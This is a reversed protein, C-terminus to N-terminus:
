HLLGRKILLLNLYGRRESSGLGLTEALSLLLAKASQLEESGALIELELFEGLEDVCDLAVTVERGEWILTGPIRMKTVEAVPAFGVAALWDLALQRSEAGAGVSVEIERRTKTEADLKPGKYTLRNDNGISRLRVAEDTARFDRSPHQFYQDIERQPSRFRVGIAELQARTAVPDVVVFKLEVELLM